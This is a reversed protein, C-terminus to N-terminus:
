FKVGNISCLINVGGPCMDESGINTLYSTKPAKTRLHQKENTNTSKKPKAYGCIM